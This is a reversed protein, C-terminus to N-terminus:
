KSMRGWRSSKVENLGQSNADEEDGRVEEEDMSGLIEDDGWGM